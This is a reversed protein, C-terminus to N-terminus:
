EHNTGKMSELKNIICELREKIIQNSKIQPLWGNQTAIDIYQNIRELHRKHTDLDDVSTRYEPCSLCASAHNCLGLKVPRACVGNPLMQANIYKKMYDAYAEDDTLSVSPIPLNELEGHSNIYEKMKKVKVRDLYEIYALTMEPSSHHLQEQIFQFPISKERMRVAMLHRLSHASFRYPTGDPNTVGYPQLYHNMKEYFFSTKMPVNEINSSFLYNKGAREEQYTKIMDYLAPPIVNFVDKKMKMSYYKIFTGKSTKELCDTKIACAESSRMGVCYLILFCLVIRKDNISNLANFIQVVVSHDIAKVKHSFSGIRALDKYKKVPNDSIYDHMILYNAFQELVIMRSALTQKLSYKLKLKEIVISTDEYNWEDFAKENLNLVEQLITLKGLITNIANDTNTLCYHIFSKILEKNHINHIKSFYLHKHGTFYDREKPLNFWSVDWTDSLLPNDSHDQLDCYKLLRSLFVRYKSPKSSLTALIVNVTDIFESYPMRFIEPMKDLSQMLGIIRYDCFSKPTLNENSMCSFLFSVIRRRLFIDKIKSLDLNSEVRITAHRADSYFDYFRKDSAAYTFELIDLYGTYIAKEVALPSGNDSKM